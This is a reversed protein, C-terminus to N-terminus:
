DGLSVHIHNAWQPTLNAGLPGLTTERGIPRNHRVDWPRADGIHIVVGLPPHTRDTQCSQRCEDVQPSAKFIYRAM